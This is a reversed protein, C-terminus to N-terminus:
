GKVLIVAKADDRLRMKLKSASSLGAKKLINRSIRINGSKDVRYTALHGTKSAKQLVVVGSGGKRKSVYALKGPDLGMKAMFGNHIAVRGRHDPATMRRKDAIKTGTKVTKAKTPKAATKAPKAVNAPAAVWYSPDKHCFPWAKRIEDSGWAYPGSGNVAGVVMEGDKFVTPTIPKSPNLAEPDYNDPSATAPGYVEARVGIGNLMVAGNRVYGSSRFPPLDTGHLGHVLKRVDEHDVVCGRDRLIRTVDYCTFLDNADIRESLVQTLLLTTAAKM